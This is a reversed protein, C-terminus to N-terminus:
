RKIAKLKQSMLTDNFEGTTELVRASISTM